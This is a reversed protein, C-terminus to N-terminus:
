PQIPIPQALGLITLLEPLTKIARRFGLYVSQSQEPTVLIGYLNTKPTRNTVTAIPNEEYSLALKPDNPKTKQVNYFYQTGSIQGNTITNLYAFKLHPYVYGIEGNPGTIAISFFMMPLSNNRIIESTAPPTAQATSTSVNQQPMPQYPPATAMFKQALLCSIVIIRFYVNKNM